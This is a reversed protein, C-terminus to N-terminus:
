VHSQKVLCVSGALLKIYLRKTRLSLKPLSVVFLIVAGEGELGTMARLAASFVKKIGIMQVSV